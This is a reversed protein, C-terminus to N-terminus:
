SEEEMEPSRPAAEREEIMDRACQRVADRAVDAHLCGTPPEWTLGEEATLYLSTDGEPHGSCGSHWAAIKGNCDWYVYWCSTCCEPLRPYDDAFMDPYKKPDPRFTLWEPYEGPILAVFHENHCVPCDQIVKTSWRVYSM